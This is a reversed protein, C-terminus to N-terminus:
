PRPFGGMIRDICRIVADQNLNICRAAGVTVGIRRREGIRDIRLDMVVTEATVIGVAAQHCDVVGVVLGESGAAVADATMGSCPVRNVCRM